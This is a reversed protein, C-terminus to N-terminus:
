AATPTACTLDPFRGFDGDYAIVDGRREIALAALHADNILDGGTGLPMLQGSLLERYGLAVGM